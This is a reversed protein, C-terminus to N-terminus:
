SYTNLERSILDYNIGLTDIIPELFIKEEIKEVECQIALLPAAIIKKFKNTGFVAGFGIFIKKDQKDIKIYLNDIIKYCEDNKSFELNFSNFISPFYKAGRINDLLCKDFGNRSIINRSVDRLYYLYSIILQTNQKHFNQM